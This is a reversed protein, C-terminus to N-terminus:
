GAVVPTSSLFTPMQYSIKEEAEPAAVKITARLERLKVQTADPFSAIYEDVTAFGKSKEDM